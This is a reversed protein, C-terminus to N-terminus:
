ADTRERSSTLDIVGSPAADSAPRNARMEDYRALSREWRSRMPVIGGGGIAIVSSGVVIGLVAYLLARVVDPAVELQDLVAFGAVVWIAIPAAKAAVPPLGVTPAVRQLSRAAWKALAAAVAIIALSAIVKPTYAVMSNLFRSVPNNTGFVSFATSITVFVVVFRVLRAVLESPTMKMKAVEDDLGVRQVLKAFGVRDLVRKVARKIVGAVFLGILLIALFAIVKPVMTTIKTWADTIGQGWEIRALLM